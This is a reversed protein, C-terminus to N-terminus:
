MAGSNSRRYVNQNHFASLYELDIFHQLEIKEMISIGVAKRPSTDGCQHPRFECASSRGHQRYPMVPVESITM